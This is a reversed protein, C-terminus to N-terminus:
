PVVANWKAKGYRDTMEIIATNERREKTATEPDVAALRVRPTENKGDFLGIASSGKTAGINVSTGGGAKAYIAASDNDFGIVVSNTAAKGTPQVVLTTDDEDENVSLTLVEKGAANLFSLKQVKINDKAERNDSTPGSGMVMATGFMLVLCTTALKWRANACELQILRKEITM